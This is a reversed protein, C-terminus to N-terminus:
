DPLSSMIDKYLDLNKIRQFHKTNRTVLDLKYLMATSAILLDFDPLREGIKELYMKLDVFHTGIDQTIPLIKIDLDKLFTAFEKFRQQKPDAKKAGYSIEMWTVVSIALEEKIVKSVASFGPDKKKLFDIVVDSDLLYM